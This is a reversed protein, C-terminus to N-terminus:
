QENRQMHREIDKKAISERKDYTKKGKVVALEIKLSKGLFYARLPVLTLGKEQTKAYLKRIQKKHLLLKRDRKPDVNFISAQEYPSIHMNHLIVEGNEITAYSDQLNAQKKRVSKVETGKLAIGAEL